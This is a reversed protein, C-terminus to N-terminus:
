EYTRSRSPSPKNTRNERDTEGKKESTQRSGLSGSATYPYVPPLNRALKSKSVIRGGGRLIRRRCVLETSDIWPQTGPFREKEERGGGKGGKADYCPSPYWSRRLVTM